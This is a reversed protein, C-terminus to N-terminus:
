SFAVTGFAFTSIGSGRIKRLFFDMFYVCGFINHKSVLPGNGSNKDIPTISHPSFPCLLTFPDHDAVFVFESSQQNSNPTIMPSFRLASKVRDAIDSKSEIISANGKNLANRVRVSIGDNSNRVNSGTMINDIEQEFKALDGSVDHVALKSNVHDKSAIPEGVVSSPKDFVQENPNSM